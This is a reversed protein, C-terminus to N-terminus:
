CRANLYSGSTIAGRKAGCIALPRHNRDAAEVWVVSEPVRKLWYLNDVVPVRMVVRRHSDLLAVSKVADSAIGSLRLLHMQPHAKSAGYTSIDWVPRALSPFSTPSKVECSISGMLMGLYRRGRPIASPAIARGVGYCIHAVGRSILQGGPRYFKIGGRTGLLYITTSRHAARLEHKLWIPLPVLRGRNSVRAFAGAPIAAGTAAAQYAVIGGNPGRAIVARVDTDGPLKAVYFRVPAGLARPAPLTATRITQRDALVIDVRRASAIVPGAIYAPLVGGRGILYSVDHRPRGRALRSLPTGTIADCSMAAGTGRNNANGDPTVAFCIGDTASRYASLTWPLGNWRGETVVVVRGTPKPAAGVSFFWWGQTVALAALPAIVLLALAVAAVALTRRRSRAFWSRRPQSASACAAEPAAAADPLGAAALVASWAPRQDTEPALRQLLAEIEPDRVASM